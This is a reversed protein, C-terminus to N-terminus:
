VTARDAAETIYLELGGPASWAEVAASKAVLYLM